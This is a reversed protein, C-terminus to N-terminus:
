VGPATAGGTNATQATETRSPPPIEHGPQSKMPSQRFEKASKGVEPFKGTSLMRKPILYCNRTAIECCDEGQSHLNLLISTPATEANDPTIDPM